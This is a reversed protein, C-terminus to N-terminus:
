KIYLAQIPIPSLGTRELLVNGICVDAILIQKKDTMMQKFQLDTLFYQKM